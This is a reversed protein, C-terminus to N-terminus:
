EAALAKRIRDLARGIEARVRDFDVEATGDRERQKADFAEEAHLLKLHVSELENLKSLVAKPTGEEATGLADLMQDLTAKTRCYLKRLEEVRAAADDPDAGGREYRETM